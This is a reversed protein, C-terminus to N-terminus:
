PGHHLPVSLRARPTTRPVALGGRRLTGARRAAAVEAVMEDETQGEARDREPDGQTHTNPPPTTM